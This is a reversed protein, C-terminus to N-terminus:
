HTCVIGLLHMAPGAEFSLRSLPLLQAEEANATQQTQTHPLLAQTKKLYNVTYSSWIDQQHATVPVNATCSNESVSNSTTNGNTELWVM